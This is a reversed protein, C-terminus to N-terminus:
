SHAGCIPKPCQDCVSRTSKRCVHCRRPTQVPDSSLPLNVAPPQIFGVEVAALRVSRKLKSNAETRKHVYEKALNFSLRKMFEKKSHLYGNRKMIIHANNTAVDILNYFFLLPWRVTKRRVSFEEINEDLTDVRGKFQNYDFILLPKRSEDDITDSSTHSSSLLIVTRSKTARYAVVTIAHNHDFLFISKYLPMKRRMLEPVERRNMRLTGILTLNKELLKVALDHCTFFNDACIDRGTGFFPESLTMVVDTGLNTHARQNRRRGGYLFGNLAYGTSSECCWFIKLGHKRPKSKMYIRGPVRGRYGLLQEDITLNADAIYFRRLNLCFSDWMERIAAFQDDQKRDERTHFNDFRLCRLLFKFRRVSM